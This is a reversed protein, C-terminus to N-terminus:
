GFATVNFAVGVTIPAGDLTATTTAANPDATVTFARPADYKTKDVINAIGIAARASAAACISCLVVALFRFNM